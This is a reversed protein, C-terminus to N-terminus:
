HAPAPVATPAARAQERGIWFVLLCGVGTLVCLPLLAVPFSGTKDRLVGIVSTIAGTGLHALTNIAAIGAAAAAPPLTETALAFFPGKIAYNGLLVLSLLVLTAALSGTLLTAAFSLSTLALPLATNWIREGSKDARLGWVIMFVSAIRFPIMNLLGTELNGLGFSKLIQPMWLSLTNSTASSGAYIIALVWVYKNTLVSWISGHGHRGASAAQREAELRGELWTRQEPSLFRAEAPRSPLVVLAALGLLVAPIAEMILLWQWGRLGAMGDLTLLAASLPSGFFSSLPIAVMFLAVIRARYAKPFWYTLYLIVGPFFGAEAAGLLFRAVSFSIAGTVFASAAGVLGWTIMIRAIWLRAGVKEMAVNSPVEFLVYAVFFLGGGIGFAAASLGLDRNMTLAAFGVNVRDVYSIFYCLVLFPILRLGVKRMTAAELSREDSSTEAM